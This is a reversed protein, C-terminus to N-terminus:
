KVREKAWERLQERFIKSNHRVDVPFGDHFLFKEIGRTHEYKAGIARLEVEVEQRSVGSADAELEVCLVPVLAGKVMVGVLATRFVAEHTNFVAEVPVTYMRRGDGLEVRHSKRGCFWMRGAEDFYGLDGMRHRVGDEDYIKAGRTAEDRHYYGETVQPGKIVFEGVEGVPLALDDSWREIPEERIEIVRVEVGDVPRGVCVGCGQDTLAATEGLIERSGISAVPLCETAGYPTFIQGEEGLMRRVRGLTKSPVPAGASIVRRLSPLEIQNAEGYRGLKDMIAPAGFMNTVGFQVMPEVLNRPNAAGPKSFDMEPIVTSMGLAPDFLAFLPFTPLDIEGPEIGYTKKILQVQAQFNGHNYKVGKPVGTSGSTFLIAALDQATVGPSQFEGQEGAAKVQELTAGGWLFKRGVTVIQKVTPKGWGLLIRAVQARPIGIFADPAAESLCTKLNKIGMGPDVMVPVVAAKFLAFTLAFFEMSPKVMLVAKSGPGIGVRHLGHAIVTSQRDLEAYSTEDYRWTGDPARGLPYYIATRDPQNKAMETLAAAINPNTRAEM